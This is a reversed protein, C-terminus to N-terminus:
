LGMPKIPPQQASQPVRMVDSPSDLSFGPTKLTDFSLQQDRQVAAAVQQVIMNTFLQARADDQLFPAAHMLSSYLYLDPAEELLWNSTVSPGLSPIKQYYALALTASGSPLPAVDITRGVVAFFRPTGTSRLRARRLMILQPISVQELPSDPSGDLQVYLLELATAPIAAKGSTIAATGTTVMYTSRLVKNLTAEALKIFDPIQQELDARNLWDAVAQRLENYTTIAM